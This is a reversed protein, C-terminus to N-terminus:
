RRRDAHVPLRFAVENFVEPRVPDRHKGERLRQNHRVQCGTFRADPRQPLGQLIPLRRSRSRSPRRETTVVDSPMRDGRAGPVLRFLRLGQGFLARCVGRVTDLLGGHPPGRWTTRPGEALRGACATSRTACASRSEGRRSHRGRGPRRVVRAQAPVSGPSPQELEARKRGYLEDAMKM